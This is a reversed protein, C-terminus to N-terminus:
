FFFQLVQPLRPLEPHFLLPLNLRKASKFLKTWNPYNYQFNSLIEKLTKNFNDPYLDNKWGDVWRLPLKDSEDGPYIKIGFIGESSISDLKELDFGQKVTTFLGVNCYLQNKMSVYRQITKITSLPPSTNPMALVTTVGSTIAAKTGTELTEKYSQDMDRLHVHSDIFGPLLIANECDIISSVSNLLSKPPNGKGIESITNNEILLYGYQLNNNTFITVNHLLKLNPKTDKM